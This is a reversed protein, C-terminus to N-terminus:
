QSEGKRKNPHNVLTFWQKTGMERMAKTNPQDQLRKYFDQLKSIWCADDQRDLGGIDGVSQIQEPLRRSVQSMECVPSCHSCHSDPELPNLNLSSLIHQKDIPDTFHHLKLAIGQAPVTVELCDTVRLPLSCQFHCEDLMTWM